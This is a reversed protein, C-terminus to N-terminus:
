DARGTAGSRLADVLAKEEVLRQMKARKYASSKMPRRTGRRYEFPTENVWLVGDEEVAKDNRRVRVRIPIRM